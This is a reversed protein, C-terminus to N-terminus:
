GRGGVRKQKQLRRTHTAPLHHQHIHLSGEMDQVAEAREGTGLGAVAGGQCCPRASIQEEAAKNPM